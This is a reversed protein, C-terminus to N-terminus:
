NIFIQPNKYFKFEMIKWCSKGLGDINMADESIFHKIKEIAIREFWDMM